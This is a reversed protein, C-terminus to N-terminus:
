RSVDDDSDCVVGNMKLRCGGCVGSDKVETIFKEPIHLETHDTM